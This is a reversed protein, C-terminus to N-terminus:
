EVIAKKITGRHTFEVFNSDDRQAQALITTKILDQPTM